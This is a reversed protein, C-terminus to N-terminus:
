PVYAWAFRTPPNGKLTHWMTAGRSEGRFTARSKVVAGAAFPRLRGGEQPLLHPASKAACRQSNQASCPTEAQSTRDSSTSTIRPNLSLNIKFRCWFYVRFSKGYHLAASAVHKASGPAGHLDPSRMQVLGAKGSLQRSSESNHVKPTLQNDPFPM